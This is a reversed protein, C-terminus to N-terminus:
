AQLTPRRQGVNTSLRERVFWAFALAALGLGFLPMLWIAGQLSFRNGILGVLYPGTACGVNGIGALVAFATATRGAFRLGVYSNLSPADGSIFVGALAFATLGLLYQPSVITAVFALTGGTACLGLLLLQPIRRRATIWGLLLRGALFGASNLSLFYAAQAADISLRKQYLQGTWSIMGVQALGHFLMALGALYLVPKCLMDKLGPLPDAGKESSATERPLSDARLLLGSIAILTLLAAAFYYGSRWTGGSQQAYALWRGLAAPGLTAGLAGSMGSAFFISQQREPFRESIISNGVVGVGALAFGFCGAGLLVVPFAPASGVATLGGALLLLAAVAAGRLGLRRAFWGGGVAFVLGSAFSVLQIRGMQELNASFTRQFAPFTVPFFSFVGGFTFALAMVFWFATDKWVTPTLRSPVASAPAVEM